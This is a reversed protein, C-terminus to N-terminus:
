STIFLLFLIYVPLKYRTFNIVNRKKSNINIKIHDKEKLNHCFVNLCFSVLIQIEFYLSTTSKMHLKHQCFLVPKKLEM